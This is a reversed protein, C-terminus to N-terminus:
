GTVEVAIGARGAAGVVDAGARDAGAHPGAGHAREPSSVGGPGPPRGVPVDGAPLDGTPVGVATADDEADAETIPSTRRHAADDQAHFALIALESAVDVRRVNVHEPAALVGPAFSLISHVGAGVFADCAAQAGEASTAIVGIVPGLERVIQPLGAVDRIVLPGPRGPRGQPHAPEVGLPRDILDPDRDLLAAVRFGGDVLGPYGSIAQGLRGAGVIVVPWHRSMGLRRSIEAALRATDYGVGRVGHSGLYSLDRRLQASQVGAAAALEGSSVTDTDHRMFETLARLYDPLRAM